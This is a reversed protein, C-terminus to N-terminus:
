GRSTNIIKTMEKQEGSLFHKLNFKLRADLIRRLVRDELTGNENDDQQLCSLGKPVEFRIEFPKTKMLGNWRKQFFFIASKMWLCFEENICCDANDNFALFTFLSLKQAYKLTLSLRLSARGSLLHFFEDSSLTFVMLWFLGSKTRGDDSSCIKTTM